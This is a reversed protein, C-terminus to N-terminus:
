GRAVSAVERRRVVIGSLVERELITPVLTFVVLGL